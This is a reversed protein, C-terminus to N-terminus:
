TSKNAIQIHGARELVELARELQDQKVLVYDTDFTSLAFISIGAEGLPHLFSSLVGTMSFPFPGELKLARWGQEIRNGAPVRAEECVISLEDANRMVSFIGGAIAWAPLPADNALQCVAFRQPLVNFKLSHPLSL